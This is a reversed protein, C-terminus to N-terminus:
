PIWTRRYFWSSIRFSRRVRRPLVVTEFADLLIAFISLIGAIASFIHMLRYTDIYARADREHLLAILRTESAMLCPLLDMVGRVLPVSAAVHPINASETRAETRM